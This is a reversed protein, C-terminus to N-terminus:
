GAALRAEASHATNQEKLQLRYFTAYRGSKRLLEDHTGSEVVTGGDVVHIASAHAITHLRHAIVLTTKGACLHDMAERVALESESDLAATAEDLLIIPANKILARAIAIRQRQGGSLQLGHEGVETDYGEAFGSIFDHAYAGKAAAIIEDDTAGIKGFGINDRITGRFLFVDQGVYALHRRLSARSVKGIDKGGISITGRDPDYYRLLLKFVTSKGGGSPGVLATTKGPEAAFSMNRLVSADERYSFGVGSFTIGDDSAALPPLGDDTVETPPSDLIEFLVRVGVLGSSLEINLRALRKAPEYALLFAAIFSLFEGPTSGGVTIRYGGYVLALTVAVGGLMEMMPSARNAVRAMKNAERQVLDVNREFRERMIPELTFAKVIALGQLTEQLTEIIQTGGHFQRRAIAHIRRVLTRLIVLAPPAVILSVLSLVPDQVVMVIVLGILSLADRGVSTVLMNLVQTVAAAGATVRAIFESTHRTAYFELSENLLIAFVRRQNDAVIRNGIRALVVAQGYTALGKITFIVLIAIGFMLVGAFNKEILAQNVVKGLIYAPLATGAAVIAMLTFALLYKKWHARGQEAILRRIVALTGHYEEASAPLLHSSM